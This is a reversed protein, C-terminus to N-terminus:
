EEIVDYSSPADCLLGKLPLKGKGYRMNEFIILVENDLDDYYAIRWLRRKNDVQITYAKGNYKAIYVTKMDKYPKAGSLVKALDFGKYTLYYSVQELDHDVITINRGNTCVEKKTPETYAWKIMQKDSFQITGRYLIVKKDPNTIKQEFSAKFNDPLTIASSFLMTSLALLAWFHRMSAEM